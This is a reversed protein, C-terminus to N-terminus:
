PAPMEGSRRRPSARAPSPPRARDRAPRRAQRGSRRRAPRLSTTVGRDVRPAHDDRVEIEVREEGGHLLELVGLKPPNREDDAAVRAAAADNRRRVVHRPPEPDHRRHRAGFREPPAGVCHEHPRAAREVPLVRALDPRDHALDHGRDLLGPDVLAIEIQALEGGGEVIGSGQGLRHAGDDPRPRPEGTREADCARLDHGLDGRVAALGTPEGDHPGPVLRLEQRRERDAHERPDARSRPARRRSCSDLRDAGDGREPVRLESRQERALDACITRSRARPISGRVSSTELSRIEIELSSVKSRSTASTSRSCSSSRRM